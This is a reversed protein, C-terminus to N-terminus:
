FGGGFVFDFYYPIKQMEPPRIVQVNKGRRPNFRELREGATERPKQV